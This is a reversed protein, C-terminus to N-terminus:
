SLFIRNVEMIDDPTYKEPLNLIKFAESETM